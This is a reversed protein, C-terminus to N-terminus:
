AANSAAVPRFPLWLRCRAGGQAMGALEIGAADGYLAQLRLRCNSLGIGRDPLAGELTSSFNRVDLILRDGDRYCDLEVRDPGAHKGIGHQIANEVVPQLILNPVASSMAERTADVHTTLRDKFRVRQIGLYLEIMELEDALAAEQRPDDLYARLLDSLRLLMDEAAQPDDRVLTSAAHLTNFLFHPHLQMRLVQLRSQALEAQLKSADVERRLRERYLTSAQALTALLVYVLVDMALHKSVYQRFQDSFPPKGPEFLHALTAGITIALLCFGACAVVHGAPVRLRLPWGIPHRSAYWFVLPALVAWTYWEFMSWRVYDIVRWTNGYMADHMYWQVAFLIVIATWAGLYRAIRTFFGGIM